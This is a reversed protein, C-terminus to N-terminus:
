IEEPMLTPIVRRGYRRYIRFDSDITLLESDSYLESMRILCADALAIPVDCYRKLLRAVSASEDALSFSPAIAARGILEVIVSSGPRLKSMIFCAEAIVAECTILPPEIEAWMAKAWEHYRDRSNLLAVLPGTDLIVQQRL